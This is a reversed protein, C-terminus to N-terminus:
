KLEILTIEPHLGIRSPFGISALGVNVYLNRIQEKPDQYLGGWYKYILRGPSWRHKESMYGVQMGHTHGSVTLFAPLHRVKLSDWVDPSHSILLVFDDPKINEYTKEINGQNIFMKTPSYFEIGAIVFSNGSSDVTIRENSNRLVRWGLQEQLSVLRLVDNNQEEENEYRAYTAYDHNGLVSYIGKNAKLGKLITMYPDMEHSSFQVMDGGFFIYDPNLQNVQNVIDHVPNSSRWTALHMDSIFVIKTPNNQFIENKTDLSIKRTVFEEAVYIMGYGMLILGILYLYFASQLMVNRWKRVKEYFKKKERKLIKIIFSIIDFPIILCFLVFKIIYQIVSSGMITLYFTTNIGHVSNKALSLAALAVMVAPMWYLITLVWESIIRWKSKEKCKRFWQFTNVITIWLYIEAFFWIAFVFIRKQVAPIQFHLILFLGIILVIFGISYILTRKTKQNM